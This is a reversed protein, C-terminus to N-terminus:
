ASATPTPTPQPNGGLFQDLGGTLTKSAVLTVVLYKALTIWDAGSIVKIAALITAALLVAIVFIGRESNALDKAGQM